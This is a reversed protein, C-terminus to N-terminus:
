EGWLVELEEEGLVLSFNSSCTRVLYNNITAEYPTGKLQGYEGLVEGIHEMLEGRETGETVAQSVVGKLLSIVRDMVKFMETTRDPGEVEEAFLGAQAGVRAAAEAQVVASPEVWLERRGPASAAERRKRSLLRFIETRYYWGLVYLYYVVGAVLLATCFQVWSISQLM